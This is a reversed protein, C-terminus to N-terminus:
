KFAPSIAPFRLNLCTGSSGFTGQGAAWYLGIDYDFYLKQYQASRQACKEFLGLLLECICAAKPAYTNKYLFKRVFRAARLERTKLLACKEQNKGIGSYLRIQPRACFKRWAADAM